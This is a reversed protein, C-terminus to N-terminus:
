TRAAVPRASSTLRLCGCWCRLFSVSLLLGPGWARVCGWGMCWVWPRGPMSRVLATAVRGPCCLPPPLPYPDACAAACQVVRLAEVKFVALAGLRQCCNGAGWGGGYQVWPVVLGVCPGCPGRGVCEVCDISCHPRPSPAASPLGRVLSDETIAEHFDLGGDLDVFTLDSAVPQPRPTPNVTMPRSRITFGPLDPTSPRLEVDETDFSSRSSARGSSPRSGYM